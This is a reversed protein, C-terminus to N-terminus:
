CGFDSKLATEDVEGFTKLEFNKIEQCSCGKSAAGVEGSSSRSFMTEGLTQCTWKEDDGVCAILFFSLSLILGTRIM